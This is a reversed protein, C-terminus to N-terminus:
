TLLCLLGCCGLSFWLALVFWYFDVVFLCCRWILFCVVLDFLFGLIRMLVGALDVHM